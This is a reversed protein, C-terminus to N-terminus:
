KCPFTAILGRLLFLEISKDKVKETGFERTDNAIQDDLIHLFNEKQLIMKEPHCFLSKGTQRKMASNAWLLGRGVGLVYIELAEDGKLEQYDKAKWEAGEAASFILLTVLALIVLGIKKM